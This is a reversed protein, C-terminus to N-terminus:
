ITKIKQNKHSKRLKQNKKEIQRTKLVQIPKIIYHSCVKVQSNISEKCFTVLAIHDCTQCSPRIKPFLWKNATSLLGFYRFTAAFPSCLRQDDEATSSLPSPRSKRTWTSCIWGTWRTRSTKLLDVKLDQPGGQRAQGQPRGGGAQWDLCHPDEWVCGSWDGAQLVLWSMVTHVGGRKGSSILSLPLLWFHLKWSYLALQYLKRDPIRIYPM